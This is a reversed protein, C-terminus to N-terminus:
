PCALVFPVASDANWAGTALQRGDARVTVSSGQWAGPLRSGLELRYAGEPMGSLTETLTRNSLNYLGDVSGVPRDRWTLSWSVEQPRSGTRTEVVLTCTALPELWDEEPQPPRGEPGPVPAEGVEFTLNRLQGYSDPEWAPVLQVGATRDWVFGRIGGDGGAGDNGRDDLTLTLVDTAPVEVRYYAGEGPASFGGGALRVNRSDRLIWSAEAPFADVQLALLLVRACADDADEPCPDDTACVGDEDPDNVPDGPCDDCADPVGDADEDDADDGALCADDGACLGDGDRDNDQDFPCPDDADCLGDRDDDPCVASTFGGCGAACAVLGVGVARVWARRRM